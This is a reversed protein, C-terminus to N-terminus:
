ALLVVGFPGIASFGIARYAALADPSPTFLIARTVGLDRAALLAGAVVSRAYGRNRLEPPTYVAGIQVRDPMRAAFACMAVPERGHMAIWPPDDRMADHFWTAAAREADERALGTRTEVLYAARWRVLRERDAVTARRVSLEGRAIAPPVVLEDLALAMLTEDDDLLARADALGLAARAASVQDLPGLFGQIRRGTHRALAIALEDIAADAQVILMGNWYHAAVGAIAADRWAIMYEGEFPNGAYRLGAARLNSRLMMCTDGRATLYAHITDLDNERAPEIRLMRALM